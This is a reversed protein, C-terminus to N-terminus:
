RWSLVVTRAAEVAGAAESAEPAAFEAPYFRAVASAAAPVQSARLEDLTMRQAAVGSVEHVFSRVAVSLEQHAGRAALSGADHRRAIQDIVALYRRQVGALNRPPVFGPVAAGAHARTSVVVFAYWGAVLVLLAVGIIPWFVSYGVPAYLSSETPM